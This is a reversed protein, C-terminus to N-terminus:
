PIPTSNPHYTLELSTPFASFAAMDRMPTVSIEYLGKDLIFEDLRRGLSDGSTDSRSESSLNSEHVIVRDLTRVEVRFTTPEGPRNVNRPRSAFEGVVNAAALRQETGVFHVRLNLWYRRKEIIRAPFTATAPWHVPVEFQPVDKYIARYVLQTVYAQPPVGMFVWVAALPLSALLVLGAVAIAIDIKSRRRM